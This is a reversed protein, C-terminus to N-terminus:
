ESQNLLFNLKQKELDNLEVLCFKVESFDCASKATIDYFLTESARSAYTVRAVPLGAPFLSSFESTVFLDGEKVDASKNVNYIKFKEGDWSLIGLAGSRANKVSIRINLNNITYVVSYNSTLDSIYGILGSYSFVTANLKVGDNRGKNIVFKNRVPDSSKLIIRANILKIPNSKEFNLLELLENREKEYEKLRLLQQTLETNEKKLIEFESRLHFFDDLPSKIYDILGYFIFSAKRLNSIEKSDNLSLFFLSFLLLITFIVYQRYNNIFRILWYIM